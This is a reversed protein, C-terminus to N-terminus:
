NKLKKTQINHSVLTYNMIIYYDFKNLDRATFNVYM